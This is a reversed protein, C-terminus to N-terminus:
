HCITSLTPAARSLWGLRSLSARELFIDCFHINQQGHVALCLHLLGWQLISELSPNNGLEAWSVKLPSLPRPLFDIIKPAWLDWDFHNLWRVVVM